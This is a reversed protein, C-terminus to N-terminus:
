HGENQEGKLGHNNGKALIPKKEDIRTLNGGKSPSASERVISQITEILESMTCTTKPYSNLVMVQSCHQDLGLLSIGTRDKLLNMLSSSGSVELEFIVLEPMISRLREEIDEGPDDIRCVRMNQQRELGVAVGDILVSHGLLVIIPEKEM